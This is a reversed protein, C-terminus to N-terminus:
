FGSKVMFTVETPPDVSAASLAAQRVALFNVVLIALAAFGASLLVVALVWILRSPGLPRLPATPADIIQVRVITKHALMNQRDKAVKRYTQYAESAIEINRRIRNNAQEAGLLVALRTRAGEITQTLASNEAALAAKTEAIQQELEKVVRHEPTFSASAKAREENLSYLRSRLQTLQEGVAVNNLKAGNAFPNATPVDSGAETKVSTLRDIRDILMQKERALDAIDYTREFIRADAEAKNLAEAAQKVQDTFLAYESRTGDLKKSKETYLQLLTRLVLPPITPTRWRQTVVIVQSQRVPFVRLGRGVAEILADRESIQQVLGLAALAHALGDSAAGLTEVAFRVIPNNPPSGRFGEPGIRDVVEAILDQSTLLEIQSTVAEVALVQPGSAPTETKSLSVGLSELNVLLKATSEYSPRKLYVAALGGVFVVVFFIAYLRRRQKLIFLLNQMTRM